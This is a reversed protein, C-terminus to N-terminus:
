LHALANLHRLVVLRCIHPSVSRRFRLALPLLSSSIHQFACLGGKLGIISLNQWAVRRADFSHQFCSRWIAPHPVPVQVFARVIISCHERPMTPVIELDTGRPCCIPSCQGVNTRSARRPLMRGDQKQAHAMGAIMKSANNWTRDRTGDAHCCNPSGCELM